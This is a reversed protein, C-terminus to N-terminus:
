FVLIVGEMREESELLLLLPWLYALDDSQRWFVAMGCNGILSVSKLVNLRWVGFVCNGLLSSKLM